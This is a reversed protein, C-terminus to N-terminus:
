SEGGVEEAAGRDRRLSLYVCYAKHVAENCDKARVHIKGLAWKPACEDLPRESELAIGDAAVSFAYLNM